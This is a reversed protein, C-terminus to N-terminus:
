DIAAPDTALPISDLDTCPRTDTASPHIATALNWRGLRGNPRRGVSRGIKEVRNITTVRLILAFRPLSKQFNALSIQNGITLNDTSAACLFVM